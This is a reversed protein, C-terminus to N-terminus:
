VLSPFVLFMAGGMIFLQSAIGSPTETPRHIRLPWPEQLSYPKDVASSITISVHFLFSVTTVKWVNLSREFVKIPWWFCKILMHNALSLGLVFFTALYAVVSCTWVLKYISLRIYGIEVAPSKYSQLATHSWLTEKFVCVHVGKWVKLFNWGGNCKGGAIGHLWIWGPISITLNNLQFITQLRDIM